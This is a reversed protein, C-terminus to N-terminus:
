ALRFNLVVNRAPVTVGRPRRLETWWHFPLRHEQAPVCLIIMGFLRANLATIAVGAAVM